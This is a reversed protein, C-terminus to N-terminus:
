GVRRAGEKWVAEKRRGGGEEGTIGLRDFAYDLVAEQTDFNVVVGAEYPTRVAGKSFEWAGRAGPGWDGVCVRTQQQQGPGARSRARTVQSRFAVRPADDGAWGAKTTHSGSDVVVPRGTM